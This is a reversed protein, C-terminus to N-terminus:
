VDTDFLIPYVDKAQKLVETVEVELPLWSIQGKLRFDRYYQSGHHNALLRVGVPWKWKKMLQLRLLSLIKAEDNVDELSRLSFISLLFQSRRSKLPTEAMPYSPRIMDWDLFRSTLWAQAQESTTNQIAAELANRRKSFMDVSRISRDHDSDFLIGLNKHVSESWALLGAEKLNAQPLLFFIGLQDIHLRLRQVFAGFTDDGDPLLVTRFWARPVDPEHTGITLEHNEGFWSCGALTEPVYAPDISLEAFVRRFGSAVASSAIVKETWELLDKTQNFQMGWSYGTPPIMLILRLDIDPMKVWFLRVGGAHSKNQILEYRISFYASASIEFAEINM